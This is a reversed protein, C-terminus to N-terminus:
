NPCVGWFESKALLLFIIVFVYATILEHTTSCLLVGHALAARVSAQSLLLWCSTVTGPPTSTGALLGM